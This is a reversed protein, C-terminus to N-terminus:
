LKWKVLKTSNISNRKSWLNNQLMDSPNLLSTNFFSLLCAFGVCGSKGPSLYNDRQNFQNTNLMSGRHSASNSFYNLCLFFFPATWIAAGKHHHSKKRGAKFDSGLKSPFTPLFSTCGIGTPAYGLPGSASVFQLKETSKGPWPWGPVVPVLWQSKTHSITRASFCSPPTKNKPIRGTGSYLSACHQLIAASIHRM